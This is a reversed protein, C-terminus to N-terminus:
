TWADQRKVDAFFSREVRGVHRKEFTAADEYGRRAGIREAFLHEHQQRQHVVGVPDGHLPLDYPDCGVAPLAVARLADADLEREVLGASGRLRRDLSDEALMEARRPRRM